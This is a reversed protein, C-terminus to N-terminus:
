LFQAFLSAGAVTLIGSIVISLSSMAGEVSGLELAKQGTYGSSSMRNASIIAQTMETLTFTEQGHLQRYVAKFTTLMGQLDCAPNRFRIM